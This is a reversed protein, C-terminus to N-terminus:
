PEVEDRALVGYLIALLVAALILGFGAWVSAPVGNWLVGMWEVRFASVIVFNAYLATYIACLVLGLKANYPLGVRAPTV